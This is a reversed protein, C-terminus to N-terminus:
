GDPPVGFMPLCPALGEIEVPVSRTALWDDRTLRLRQEV